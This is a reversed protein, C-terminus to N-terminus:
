MSGVIRLIQDSTLDADGSITHLVGANVWAASSGFTYVTIGGQSYTLYDRPESLVYNDLVAGSDWATNKQVITFTKASGSAKFTMTVDGDSYSVPGKFRYGAPVYNPYTAEVHASKAAVFLSLAPVTLYSVASAALVAIVIGTAILPPSLRIRKQFHRWRSETRAATKAAHRAAHAKAARSPTHALQHETVAHSRPRTHAAKAVRAVHAAPTYNQVQTALGVPREAADGANVSSLIDSPRVTHPADSRGAAPAEFDRGFRSVAPHTAVPSVTRVHRRVQVVDQRVGASPTAVPPKSLGTRRLTQSRAPGSHMRGAPTVDFSGYRRTKPLPARTAPDLAQGSLADYTTGNLSLTARNATRGTPTNTKDTM